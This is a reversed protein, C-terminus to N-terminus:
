DLIGNSQNELPIAQFQDAIESLKVPIANAANISVRKEKQSFVCLSMLLFVVM